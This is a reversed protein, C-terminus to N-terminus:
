PSIGVQPIRTPLMVQKIFYVAIKKKKSLKFSDTNRGVGLLQKGKETGM